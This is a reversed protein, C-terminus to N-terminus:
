FEGGSKDGGCNWRCLDAGVVRDRPAAARKRLENLRGAHCKGELPYRCVSQALVCAHRTGVFTGHPHVERPSSGFLLTQLVWNPHGDTDFREGESNIQM